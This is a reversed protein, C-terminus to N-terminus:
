RALDLCIFLIAFYILWFTATGLIFLLGLFICLEM